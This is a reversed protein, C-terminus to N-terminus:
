VDNLHKNFIFPHRVMNKVTAKFGIRKRSDKIYLRYLAIKGALSNSFLYIDKNKNMLSTWKLKYAEKGRLFDFLTRGELYAWNILETVLLTGMSYKLYAQNYGGNFWAIRKENVLGYYCAIVETRDNEAEIIFANEAQSLVKTHYAKFNAATFMSEQSKADMRDNHFSFAKEIKRVKEEKSLEAATYINFSIGAKLAKNGYQRINRVLKNGLTQNLAEWDEKLNIYPCDRKPVEIYQGGKLQKFNLTEANFYQLKLQPWHKLMQQWFFIEDEKKVGKRKIPGLNDWGSYHANETIAAEVIPLAIIAEDNKRLIAVCISQENIGNYVALMSASYFVPPDMSQQWLSQVLTYWEEEKKYSVFTLTDM